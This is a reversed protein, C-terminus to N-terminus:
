HSVTHMLIWYHQISSKIEKCLFLYKKKMIKKIFISVYHIMNALNHQDILRVYHMCLIILLYDLYETGYHHDPLWVARCLYIICGLPRPRWNLYDMEAKQQHKAQKWKCINSTLKNYFMYPQM